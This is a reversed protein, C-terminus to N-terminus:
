FRLMVRGNSGNKGNTSLLPVAKHAHVSLKSNIEDLTRWCSRFCAASCGTAPATSTAAPLDEHDFMRKPATCCFAGRFSRTQAYKYARSQFLRAIAYTMIYAILPITPDVVFCLPILVAATTADIIAHLFTGFVVARNRWRPEDDREIDLLVAKGHAAMGLTVLLSGLIYATTGVASPANAFVKLNESGATSVLALSVGLPFFGIVPLTFFLNTLLTARSVHEVGTTLQGHIAWVRVIATFSCNWPSLMLAYVTLSLILVFLCFCERLTTFWFVLAKRIWAM